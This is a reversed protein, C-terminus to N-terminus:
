VMGEIYVSQSPINVHVEDNGFLFSRAIMHSRKLSSLRDGSIMKDRDEGTTPGVLTVDLLSGSSTFVLSSLDSLLPTHVVLSDFISSVCLM